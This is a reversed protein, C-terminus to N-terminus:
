RYTLLRLFALDWLSSLAEPVSEHALRLISGASIDFRYLNFHGRLGIRAAAAGSGREDRRSKTQRWKGDWCHIAPSDGATGAPSEPVANRLAALQGRPEEMERVQHM